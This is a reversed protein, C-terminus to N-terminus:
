RNLIDDVIGMLDEVEFVPDKRTIDSIYDSLLYIDPPVFGLEYLVGADEKLAEITMDAAIKGSDMIVIRDAYEVADNIDHTIFAIGTGNKGIKKLGAFLERKARPDLGATPEDLCLYDPRMAIIGCLAAKRQEGGSLEFPSDDLRKELEPAFTRVTNLVSERVKEEDWKLNRPGFAMDAYLTEEFLQLEPFQFVLGVKRTIAAGRTKNIDAGDVRVVGKTPKLIGNFHQMLTSKGSGTRGLFATIGSSDLSISVDDLALNELPTDYLYIYILRETEIKM